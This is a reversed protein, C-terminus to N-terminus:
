FRLKWDKVWQSRSLIGKGEDQGPAVPLFSQLYKAQPPNSLTSRQAKNSTKKKGEKLAKVSTTFNCECLVLLGNSSFSVM